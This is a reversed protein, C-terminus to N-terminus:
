DLLYEVLESDVCVHVCVAMTAERRSLPPLSPSANPM